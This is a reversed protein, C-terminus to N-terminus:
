TDRDWPGVAELFELFIGALHEQEDSVEGRGLGVEVGRTQSVRGSHSLARQLWM